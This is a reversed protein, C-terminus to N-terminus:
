KKKLNLKERTQVVEHCDLNINVISDIKVNSEDDMEFFLKKRSAKDVNNKNVLDDPTTRHGAHAPQMFIKSTVDNSDILPNGDDEIMICENELETQKQDIANQIFRNKLESYQDVSNVISNFHNINSM